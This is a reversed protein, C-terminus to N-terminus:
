KITENTALIYDTLFEKMLNNIKNYNNVYVKTAYPRTSKLWTHFWVDNNIVEATINNILNKLYKISQKLKKWTKLSEKLWTIVYGYYQVQNSNYFMSEISSYNPCLIKIEENYKNFKGDYKNKTQEYNRLWFKVNSLLKTLEAKKM